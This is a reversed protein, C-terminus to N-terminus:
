DLREVRDARPNEVSCPLKVLNPSIVIVFRRCKAVMISSLGEPFSKRPQISFLYGRRGALLGNEEEVGKRLYAEFLGVAGSSRVDSMTVEKQTASRQVKDVFLQMIRTM